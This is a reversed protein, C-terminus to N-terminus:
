SYLDQHWFVFPVGRRRCHNLLLRQALLPTNASLVVHPSFEAVRKILKQAYVREQAPRKRLSYKAFDEPLRVEDISFTAPDSSARRLAGKGSRYSPCHLHLVHYGRSALERSLQVQFPHGSYDHILLRASGVGRSATHPATPPRPKAVAWTM